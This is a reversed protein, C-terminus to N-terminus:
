ASLFRLYLVTVIWKTASKTLPTSMKVAIFVFLIRVFLDFIALQISLEM